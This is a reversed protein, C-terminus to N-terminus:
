RFRGRIERIKGQNWTFYRWNFIVYSERKVNFHNWTFKRENWSINGQNWSIGWSKVHFLKKSFESCMHNVHKVKFHNWTIKLQFSKVYIEVLIIESVINIERLNEGSKVFNERIERSIEEIPCWNYSERKEKFHNWTIKLQLSKM